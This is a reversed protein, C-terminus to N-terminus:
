GNRGANVQADPRRWARGLPCRFLLLVVVAYLAGALEDTLYHEGGYVLAFGMALPYLLLLARRSPRVARWLFGVALTAFALHLSPMAAVPNVLHQGLGVAAGVMKLGIVDFGESTYRGVPPGGLDGASSALWPPATPLVVYTVLGAVALVVVMNIWVLFRDRHRLWLVIALMPTVLFHTCYVASVLTGYWPVATGPHLHEQVWQVPIAGGALLQDIRIPLDVQLPFGLANYM